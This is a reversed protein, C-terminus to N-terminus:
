KDILIYIVREFVYVWSDYCINQLLQIIHSTFNRGNLNKYLTYRLFLIILKVLKM